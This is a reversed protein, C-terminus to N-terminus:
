LQMHQLTHVKALSNLMIITGMLCLNKFWFSIKCDKKQRLFLKIIVDKLLAIRELVELLIYNITLMVCFLINRNKADKRRLIDIINQIFKIKM